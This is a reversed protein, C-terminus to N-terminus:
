WALGSKVNLTATSQHYQLPHPGRLEEILRPLPFPESSGHVTNTRPKGDKGAVRVYSVTLKRRGNDRSDLPCDPHQEDVDEIVLHSVVAALRRENIDPCGCYLLAGSAAHRLLAARGEETTPRNAALKLLEHTM